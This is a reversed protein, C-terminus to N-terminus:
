PTKRSKKLPKKARAKADQAPDAFRGYFLQNIGERQETWVAHVEGNRTTIGSYDGFFKKATPTFATSLATAQWTAGADDSRHVWAQTALSDTQGYALVHLAGSSADLAFWPMFHHRISDPVPLRSPTSWNEGRDISKSHSVWSHNADQEGYILHWDGNPAFFSMPMGNARGLAPIEQSWGGLQRAIPRDSPMWTMAGDDDSRNMWVTDNYAWVVAVGGIPDIVPIAGEPTQDDDICNGEKHSVTLAPSWTEGRDYSQSFRIRSRFEPEKRGYQDFETWSVHLIGNGPDVAIGEKDQDKPPNHGIGAGDSWTKGQNDSWQIVIRDLWSEGARGQGSPDALHLYYLRGQHDHALIPDGYVGLSSQLAYNPEWADPAGNRKNRHLQNLVNGLYVSSGIPDVAVSPECAWNERGSAETIKTVQWQAQGMASTAAILAAAAFTLKAEM